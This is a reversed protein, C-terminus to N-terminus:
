RRTPKPAGPTGPTHPAPHLTRHATHPTRHVTHPASSWSVMLVGKHNVSHYPYCYPWAITSERRGPLRSGFYNLSGCGAVWGCTIGREQQVCHVLEVASEETLEAASDEMLTRALVPTTDGWHRHARLVGFAGARRRLHALVILLRSFTSRAHYTHSPLPTFKTVSLVNM